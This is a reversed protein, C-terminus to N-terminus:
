DEAEAGSDDSGDFVIAEIEVLQERSTLEEDDLVERIDAYGNEYIRAIEELEGYEM